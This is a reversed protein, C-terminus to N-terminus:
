NEVFAWEFQASSMELITGDSSSNMMDQLKLATRDEVIHIHISHTDMARLVKRVGSQQIIFVLAQGIELWTKHLMGM